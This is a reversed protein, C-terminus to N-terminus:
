YRAAEYRTEQLRANFVDAERVGEHDQVAFAGIANNGENVFAGKLDGQAINPSFLAPDSIFNSNHVTGGAQFNMVTGQVNGTWTAETLNFQLDIMGGTATPGAYQAIVDGGFTGLREMLLNMQQETAAIGWVYEGSHASQGDDAIQRWPGEAMAVQEDADRLLRGSISSPLDRATSRMRDYAIDAPLEGSDLAVNEGAPASPGTVVYRVSDGEGETLALDIMGVHRDYAQGSGSTRYDIRAFGCGQGAQCPVDVIPPPPPPPPPTPDDIAQPEPCNAGAECRGLDNAAVAPFAPLEEVGAAPALVAWRGWRHVSDEEDTKKAFASATLGASLATAVSLAILTMKVDM